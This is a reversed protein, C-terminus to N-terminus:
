AVSLRLAVLFPILIILLFPGFNNSMEFNIWM